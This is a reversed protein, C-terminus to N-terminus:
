KSVLRLKPFALDIHQFYRLSETLAELLEKSLETLAIGPLAEESEICRPLPIFPTEAPLSPWMFDDGSISSSTARRGSASRSFHRKLPRLFTSQLSLGIVFANQFLFLILSTWRSKPMKVCNFNQVKM